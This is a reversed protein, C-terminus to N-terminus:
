VLALHILAPATTPAQDINANVRDVMATATMAESAVIQTSNSLKYTGVGGTGTFLGTITTGTAILLNVDQILQGVALAGAAVATV